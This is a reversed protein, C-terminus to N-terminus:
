PSTVVRELSDALARQDDTPPSKAQERLLTLAAEPNGAWARARAATVLAEPFTPDLRVVRELEGAAAEFEGIRIRAVGLLFRYSSQAPDGSVARELHPVAELPRETRLLVQGLFGNAWASEPRLRLAQRCDSEAEDFSRVGYHAYARAVLVAFDDDGAGRAPLRALADEPRGAEMLLDALLSQADANGPRRAAYREFARLHASDAVAAPPDEGTFRYLGYYREADLVRREVGELGPLNWLSDALPRFHPRFRAELGSVYLYEAGNREAEELLDSLRNVPPMPVFPRGGLYAVHPKRAMVGTNRSSGSPLSAVRRAAHVVEHPAGALLATVHKRSEWGLQVLFLLLAAAAVARAATRAREPVRALIRRLPPAAPGGVVLAAAGALYFPLLYLFFRPAYFIVSLSLYAAAAHLWIARWHPRGPWALLLGLAGALGLPVSVLREWDLRWHGFVGNALSRWVAAPDHQLVDSVSGFQAANQTWFDEWPQGQGYFTYALNLYNRQGFPTGTIAWQAVGWIALPAFAGVAYAALAPWRERRAALVLSGVPLLFAANYRTLVAAAATVGALVLTVNGAGLVLHTSWVSLAFAPLDTGAELSAQWYIPNTALGLFVVLGGWAGLSRRVLAFAGAAGALAALVNWWRAALWGDGDFLPLATGLLLPYGPGKFELYPALDGGSAIAEAAPLADGLLDTEVGYLPTTHRGVVVVILVVAYVALLAVFLRDALAAAPWLPERQTGRRPRSPQSRGQVTKLWRWRETGGSM